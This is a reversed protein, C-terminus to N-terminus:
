SRSNPPSFFRVYLKTDGGARVGTRIRMGGLASDDQTKPREVAISPVPSEAFIAEGHGSDAPTIPTM